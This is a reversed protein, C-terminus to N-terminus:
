EGVGERKGERGKVRQREGGREGKAERDRTFMGTEWVVFWGRAFM